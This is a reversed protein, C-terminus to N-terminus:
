DRLSQRTFTTAHFDHHSESIGTRFVLLRPVVDSEQNNFLQGRPETRSFGASTEVCL